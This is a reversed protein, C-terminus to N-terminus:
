TSKAAFSFLFTKIRNSIYSKPIQHSYGSVARKEAAKQENVKEKKLPQCPTQQINENDNAETAAKPTSKDNPEFSNVHFSDILESSMNSNLEQAYSHENLDISNEADVEANFSEIQHCPAEFNPVPEIEDSIGAAQAPNLLNEGTESEMSVEPDNLNDENVLSDVETSNQEDDHDGLFTHATNTSVM